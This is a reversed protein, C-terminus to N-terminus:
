RANRKSEISVIKPCGEGTYEDLTAVARRVADDTAHTYRMTTKPNKHGLIEMLAPLGAGADGMRTAATHRLDHWRLGEISLRRCVTAFYAGPRTYQNDNRTVFVREEGEARDAHLKSLCDRVTQNMPVTVARKNATGSVSITGRSFDVQSWLLGGLRSARLGTHIACTFMASLVPPLSERLLKEEEVSCVRTRQNDVPLKKVKRAPNSAILGQDMALSLAAALVALEHNVSAAARSHETKGYGHTAPTAARERKWKEIAFPTIESLTQKGFAALAPKIRSEDDKWSRKHDRAWPLYTDETFKQFTINDGALGFRRNYVEERQQNEVRRAQAKTRAEPIAGRYRQRRIMFDYYWVSNRKYTAM